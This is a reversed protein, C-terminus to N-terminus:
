KRREMDKLYKQVEEYNYLRDKEEDCFVDNIDRNLIMKDIVIKSLKIFLIILAFLLM